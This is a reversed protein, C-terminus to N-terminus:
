TIALPQVNLRAALLDLRDGGWFLEDRYVFTPAGFVGLSEARQMAAQLDHQAQIQLYDRWDQAALGAAVLAAELQAPSELDFARQWFAALLPECFQWLRGRSKAFLLAQSAPAADWLKTTARISLGQLTALRRCDMYLYKLKAVDRSSRQAIKGGYASRFDTLCPWWEFHVGTDRGLARAPALALYSYPSRLDIFVDVVDALPPAM